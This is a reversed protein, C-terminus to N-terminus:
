YLGYARKHAELRPRPIAKTLGDALMHETPMYEPTIINRAILDRVHHYRIDIHKVRGHHEPDRAITLCAQNDGYLLVSEDELLYGRHEVDLCLQRLWAAEKAAESYAIYEAETTSSAVLTQKRSAWTIAGGALMFVHGATSKRTIDEAYDSDSYGVLQSADKNKNSYHLAATKTGKLYRLVRKAATWHTETPDKNFQSLRGAIFAIDPRTTRMVWMLKGTLQQYQEPDWRPDGEQAPVLKQGPQIPTAVPACDEMGCEQLLGEIYGEHSITVAGGPGRSVAMGLVNKCEGLDKMDFEASLMRKAENIAKLDKSGALLLDDVYAAILVEGNYYLGYESHLQRYGNALLHDRLKHNWVRASQKLGYLSKLLRLVKGYSEYGDPAVMYIEEDLSSALYASKVDKQHVAWNELAAVALLLRISELRVTPAFTQTYDIGYQQTFGRAVVRAKFRDVSGDPHKKVKFVWKSTVPKRGYPLDELRWTGNANLSDLEDRIAAEWQKGHVVDGVAETYTKPEKISLVALNARDLVKWTSQRTRTSRRVTQNAAEDELQQDEEAQPQLNEIPTVGIGGRSSPVATLSTNEIAARYNEITSHDEALPEEDPDPELMSSATAQDENFKVHTATIVRKSEPDWLRYHTATEGYGLMICKQSNKYLKDGGNRHEKPTLAYADCGFAQLHAVDPKTGTWREEPTEEQGRPPIRNHIYVATQVVEPWLNRPLRSDILMAKSKEIITRNIREAVGNQEPTYPVAPKMTGGHGKICWLLKKLEPANDSRIAMVKQGSQAEAQAQWDKFINTANSRAGTAFVWVKRSYDDTITLMFAEGRPGKTKYPGWFDMHIRGLLKQARQTTATFQRRHQKGYVCPECFQKSTGVDQPMGTVARAVEHLKRYSIHGLRRHWLKQLEKKSEQAEELGAAPATPAAPVTSLAASLGNAEIYAGLAYLRGLRHVSAIPRDKRALFITGNLQKAMTIGRDELQGMSVLNNAMGPAHWVSTLILGNTGPVELDGIGAVTLQQGNAVELRQGSTLTYRIFYDKLGTVHNSAGSDILWTSQLTRRTSEHTLLMRDLQEPDYVTSAKSAKTDNDHSDKGSDKEKEKEKQKQERKWIRCDKKIHGKKHCHFCERTEKQGEKTSTEKKSEQKNAKGAISMATGHGEQTNERRLEEHRLRKIAEDYTLGPTAQMHAIMHEYEMPLANLLLCVKFQKKREEPDKHEVDELEYWLEELKQSLEQINAGGNARLQMIQVMIRYYAQDGTPRHIDRLKQWAESAKRISRIAQYEPDEISGALIALAIGNRRGWERKLVVAQNRAPEREEGSVIDWVGQIELLIQTKPAWNVFNKKNLRPQTYTLRLGGNTDTRLEMAATSAGQLPGSAEGTEQAAMGRAAGAPSM